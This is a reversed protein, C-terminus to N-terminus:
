SCSGCLSEQWVQLVVVVAVVVIVALTMLIGKGIPMPEKTDM